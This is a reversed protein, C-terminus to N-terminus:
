DEKKSVEAEGKQLRVEWSTMLDKIDQPPSQESVWPALADYTLRDAEVYQASLSGCGASITVILCSLIKKM